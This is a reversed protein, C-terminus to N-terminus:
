IRKRLIKKARTSYFNEESSLEELLSRAQEIKGTKLYLMSLYWKSHLQYAYEGNTIVAKFNNEAVEIENIELASLALYYQGATNNLNKTNYNKLVEFASTYEGKNYLKLAFTFENVSLDASRTSLDTTYPSYNKAFTKEPSPSYSITYISLLIIFVAVIASVTRYAPFRKSSNHTLISLKQRLFHVEDDIISENIERHFVVLQTLNKDEVLQQEFTELESRSLENNLYSDIKSQIEM